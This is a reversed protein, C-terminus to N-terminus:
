GVEETSVAAWTVIEHRGHRGSTIYGVALEYPGTFAVSQIKADNPVMPAVFARIAPTLGIHEMAAGTDRAAGFGRLM